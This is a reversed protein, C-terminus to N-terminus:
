AKPVVLDSARKTVDIAIKRWEASLQAVHDITNQSLQALQQTTARARAVMTAELASLERMWADLRALHDKAYAAFGEPTLPLGFMGDFGRPSPESKPTESTPPQTSTETKM